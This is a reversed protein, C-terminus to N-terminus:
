LLGPVVRNRGARKAVYLLEDAKKILGDLPIDHNSQTLGISITTSFSGTCQCSAEEFTSRIRETIPLATELNTDLFLFMFEEGGWRCIYDTDRCERKFIAAATQLLRDGCAHGASDNVEKFHDMDAMAICFSRSYRKSRKAEAALIESFKRRTYLGTLMDTHAISSVEGYMLANHLVLGIQEGLYYFLHRDMMLHSEQSTFLATIGGIIGDVTKIPAASVFRIGKKKMQDRFPTEPYDKVDIAVVADGEIAQWILGDGRELYEVSSTDIGLYNIPYALTLGKREEDFLFIGGSDINLTQTLIEGIRQYLEQLDLHAATDNLFSFLYQFREKDIRLLFNKKRLSATAMGMFFALHQFIVFLFAISTNLDQEILSTMKLGSYVTIGIRFLFFLSTALFLITLELVHFDNRRSGGRSHQFLLFSGYGSTVAVCASLIIVRAATNFSPYTFFLFLAAYIAMLTPFFLRPMRQVCENVRLAALVQAYQGIVILVNAIIITVWTPLYLQFSLLLFGGLSLLSSIQWAGYRPKDRRGIILSFLAGNLLVIDLAILLTRNDM